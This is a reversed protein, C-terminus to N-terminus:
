SGDCNELVFNTTAGVACVKATSPETITPCAASAWISGPKVNQSIVTITCGGEASTFTNALQPASFAITATGTTKDANIVGNTITLAVKDSESSLAKISGSFTYPGNGHVSCKIAAGHEGDILRDGVTPPNSTVNPPKPNGVQYTKGPVPCSASGSAQTISVTMNGQAPRPVPDSCGLAALLPVTLFWWRRYGNMM